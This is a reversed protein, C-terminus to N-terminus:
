SVKINLFNGKWKVYKILKIYKMGFSEWCKFNGWMNLFLIKLCIMVFLLWYYIFILIFGNFFSVVEERVLSGWKMRIYCKIFIFGYFFEIIGFLVYKVKFGLYVYM